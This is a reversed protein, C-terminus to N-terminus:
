GASVHRLSLTMKVNLRRQMQLIPYDDTSWCIMVCFESLFNFFPKPQGIVNIEM